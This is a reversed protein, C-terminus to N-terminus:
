TMSTNPNTAPTLLALLPPVMGYTKDIHPNEVYSLFGMQLFHSFMALALVQLSGCALALGYMWAYGVTYRCLAFFARAPGQM